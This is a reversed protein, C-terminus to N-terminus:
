VYWADVIGSPSYYAEIKNLPPRYGNFVYDIAMAVVVLSGAPAEVPLDIVQEPLDKGINDIKFKYSSHNGGTGDEASCSAAVITCMLYEISLPGRIDRAPNFAAITVQVSGTDTLTFTVPIHQDPKDWCYKLFKCANFWVKCNGKKLNGNAQGKVWLLISSMIRSYMQGKGNLTIASSIETNLTKSIATAKSFTERTAKQAESPPATVKRVPRSYNRGNRIFYVKDGLKGQLLGNIIKAM